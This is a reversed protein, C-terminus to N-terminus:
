NDGQPQNTQAAVEVAMQEALEALLSFIAAPGVLQCAEYLMPLVQQADAADGRVLYAELYEIRPYKAQRFMETAKEVLLGALKRVTEPDNEDKVSLSSLWVMGPATVDSGEGGPIFDGHPSMTSNEDM